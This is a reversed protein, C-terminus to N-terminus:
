LSACLGLIKMLIVYFSCILWSFYFNYFSFFSLLVLFELVQAYFVIVTTFHQTCLKISCSSPTFNVKYVLCKFHSLWFLSLSFIQLFMHSIISLVLTYMQTTGSAM